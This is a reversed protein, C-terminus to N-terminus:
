DAELAIVRFAKVDVLGQDTLKLKPIVPLALFSLTLFPNEPLAGIKQAARKLEEMKSAVTECPEPSMLGAIPLPLSAIVKGQDVVALGGQMKEIEQAAERMDADGAGIVVINHSDHAVSAALAGQKLGFGQVMGVGMQGSAKHREIVAIKLIDSQFDPLVRGSAERKVPLSLKRTVIQNPVLGIVWARGTKLFLDFAGEPLPKMRVSRLVPLDFSPAPLPQTQSDRVIVKGNKMTHTVRFKGFDSLVALDARLGPAIAGRDKLHFRRAPNITAMRLAMISDLGLGMAKRILHDIEGTRILDSPELDDTVWLCRHHNGPSVVSLLDRLNKAASGERIMLWMGLRLKEEAEEPRTCEHDSQIGAAIYANLDKGSLLPAHGDIPKGRKRAARLKEMVSPEQQIVGPFNMMEGLGLVRPNQWLKEIDEARIESGATELPTAPVCSPAMFFFDLPLGQSAKLLAEIGLVGLVNAIEHPDLILTTTGHALAFRAYEAPTLLSSELHLHGNILGPVLFSGDIDLVERANGYELGVGAIWEGAVAVHAPYIEGTLVDVVRGGKILLDAPENGRAVDMLHNM